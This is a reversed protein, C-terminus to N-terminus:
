TAYRREFYPELQSVHVKLENGSTEDKVIFNVPSTQQIIRFPGDFTPSLKNKSPHNSPIRRKVLSGISSRFTRRHKDFDLKKKQKFNDSKEVVESRLTKLDETSKQQPTHIDSGNFILSPTFGTVSHITNNYNECTNSVHSSWKGAAPLNLKLKQVLTGNAKENLGNAQPHYATTFRHKINRRALFNAFMSAVFNKGNDTLIEKANGHKAFIEELFRVGTLSDNKAVPKAWM